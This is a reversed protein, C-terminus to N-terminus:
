GLREPFGERESVRNFTQVVCEELSLGLRHALLDLYLLTDGIETAISRVATSEDQPGNKATVGHKIRNYKKVADCVEGAEGAMAVAWDSVSWDDLGNPHWRSARSHNVKALESFTLEHKKDLVTLFAEDPGTSFEVLQAKRIFRSYRGTQEDINIDQEIVKIGANGFAVHLMEITVGAGEPFEVTGTLPDFTGLPQQHDHNKLIPIM